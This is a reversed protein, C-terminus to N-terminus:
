APDHKKVAKSVAAIALVLSLVIFITRATHIMQWRKLEAPVNEPLMTKNIFSLNIPIFYAFLMVLVIVNCVNVWLWLNKGADNSKRTRFFIYISLLLPIMEMPLMVFGIRGGFDKVWEMFAEPQMAQWSPLLVFLIFIAAGALLGLFAITWIYISFIKM